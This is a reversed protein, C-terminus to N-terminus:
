IIKVSYTWITLHNPNQNLNSQFTYSKTQNQFMHDIPTNTASWIVAACTNSLVSARSSTYGASPQTPRILASFFYDSCRTIISHARASCSRQASHGPQSGLLESRSWPSGLLGRDAILSWSSASCVRRNGFLSSASCSCSTATESCALDFCQLALCLPRSQNM